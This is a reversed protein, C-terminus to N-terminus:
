CYAIPAPLPDPGAASGPHAEIERFSQENEWLIPEYTTMKKPEVARRFQWLQRLWIGLRM